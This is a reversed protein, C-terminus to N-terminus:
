YYLYRVKVSSIKLIFVAVYRSWGVFFFCDFLVAWWVVYIPAMEFVPACDKWRFPLALMFQPVGQHFKCDHFLFWSDHFRTGVVRFPISLLRFRNLLHIITQESVPSNKIDRRDRQANIFRTHTSKWLNASLDLFLFTFKITACIAELWNLLPVNLAIFVISFCTFM